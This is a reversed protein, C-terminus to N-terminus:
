VLSEMKLWLPTAMNACALILVWDTSCSREYNQCRSKFIRCFLSRSTTKKIAQKAAYTHDSPLITFNAGESDMKDKAQNQVERAVLKNLYLILHQAFKEAM